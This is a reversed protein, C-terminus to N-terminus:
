KGVFNGGRSPASGSFVDTQREVGLLSCLRGVLRRGEGRLSLLEAPNLTISGVAHAKLRGHAGFLRSDILALQALLGPPDGTAANTLQALLAPRNDVHNMAQELRADWQGFGDPWGTYLRVAVRQADSLPM